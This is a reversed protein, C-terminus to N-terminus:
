GGAFTWEQGLDDILVPAGTASCRYIPAGVEHDYEGFYELPAGTTSPTSPGTVPLQNTQIGNQQAYQAPTLGAAWAANAQDQTLGLANAQSDFLQAAQFSANQQALQATTQTGSSSGSKSLLLLGAGGLVVLPLLYSM